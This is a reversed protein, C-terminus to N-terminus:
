ARDRGDCIPSVGYGIVAAAIDGGFGRARRDRCLQDEPAEDGLPIKTGDWLQLTFPVDLTRALHAFIRQAAKLQQAQSFM